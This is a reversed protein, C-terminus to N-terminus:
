GPVRLVVVALDDGAVGLEFAEVGEAVADAVEPARLGACRGVIEKLREEGLQERGHRAELAGDTYFVLADGASLTVGEDALEPEPWLGLLTGPSGVSEVTGDARLVLPLPHGGCALTCAMGDGDPVVLAFVATCFREGTDTGLVAENLMELVRSPVRERMAAARVTYRALATLAAAEVGKGCVDGIVVGWGDEGVEFLDYFDGVVDLGHGAPRYRAAVELGFIEPLLPPLLSAQLTRNLSAFREHSARLEEEAQKRETADVMIGVLRETGEDDDAIIYVIDRVWVVRGDAARLRYEVDHVRKEAVATARQPMVWERDEPHVTRAWFDPEEIWREVSHGLLEEAQHSVFTYALTAPDAEFLVAGLGDVFSRFRQEGERVKRYLQANDVAMGARRAFAGALGIDIDTYPPAGETRVLSVAGVTRGRAWMPVVLTRATAFTESTEILARVDIDDDSGIPEGATIRTLDGDEDLVNVACWQGLRRLALAAVNRMTVSLDLSSSLLTTSEALFALREREEDAGRRAAAERALLGASNFSAAVVTVFAAVVDAIEIDLPSRYLAVVVAQLEDDLLVPSLSAAPYPEGLNNLLVPLRSRAVDAVLTAGSEVPVVDGVVRGTHQHDGAIAALRLEGPSEAVWVEAADSALDDVLADATLRALTGLGQAPSLRGAVETVARLLRAVELQRELVLREPPASPVGETADDM